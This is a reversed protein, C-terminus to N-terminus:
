FIQYRIFLQFFQCFGEIEVVILFKELLNSKKIDFLCATYVQKNQKIVFDYPNRMVKKIHNHEIIM